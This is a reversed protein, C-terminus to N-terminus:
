SAIELSSAGKGDSRSRVEHRRLRADELFMLLAFNDPKGTGDQRLRAIVADLKADSWAGVTQETAVRFEAIAHEAALKEGDDHNGNGAM